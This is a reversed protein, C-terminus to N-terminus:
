FSYGTTIIHTSGAPHLRYAYDMLYSGKSLGLGVTFINAEDLGARLALNPLLWAEVGSKYKVGKGAIVDDCVMVEATLALNGVNGWRIGINYEDNENYSSGALQFNRAVFGLAWKGREWMLGFDAKMSQM